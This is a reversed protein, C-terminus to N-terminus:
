RAGRRVTKYPKKVWGKPVVYWRFEGEGDQFTQISEPVAGDNEMRRMWDKRCTNVEATDESDIFSVGTERESRPLDGTTHQVRVGLEAWEPATRFRPRFRSATPQKQPHNAASDSLSAVKRPM